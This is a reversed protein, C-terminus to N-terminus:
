CRIQLPFAISRKCFACVKDGKSIKYICEGCYAHGCPVAVYTIKKDCCIPCEKTDSLAVSSNDNNDNAQEIIPEMATHIPCNVHTYTKLYCTSCEGDETVVGLMAAKYREQLYPPLVEPNMSPINVIDMDPDIVSYLYNIETLDFKCFKVFFEQIKGLRQTTKNIETFLQDIQANDAAIFPAIGKSNNIVWQVLEEKPTVKDLKYGMAFKHNGDIEGFEDHQLCQFSKAGLMKALLIHCSCTMRRKSTLLITIFNALPHSVDDGPYGIDYTEIYQSFDINESIAAKDRLYLLISAFIKEPRTGGIVSLDALTEGYACKAQELTFTHRKAFLDPFLKPFVKRKPLMQILEDRNCFDDTKVTPATM